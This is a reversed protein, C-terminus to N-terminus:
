PGTIPRRRRRCAQPRRCDGCGGSGGAGEAIRRWFDAFASVPVESSGILNGNYRASNHPDLLVIIGREAAFGVVTEIRALENTDLPANLSRQLREWLFPLRILNM